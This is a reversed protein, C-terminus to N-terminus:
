GRQKLNSVIFARGAPSTLNERPLPNPPQESTRSLLRLFGTALIQAVEQLRERPSMAQAPLGKKMQHM